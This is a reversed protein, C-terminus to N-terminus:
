NVRYYLRFGFSFNFGFHSGEVEDYDVAVERPDDWLTLNIVDSFTNDRIRFGVGTYVNLGLKKRSKIILGYNINCGYKQRLYNAKDFKYYGGDIKDIYDNHYVDTHHIYFLESSFYQLNKQEPNIIYYLEPRIEYLRHDDDIAGGFSTLYDSVPSSAAWSLKRSGYGLDVGLKWKPAISQIYGARWRPNFPDISSFLSLTLFSSEDMSNKALLEKDQAEIFTASCLFVLILSLKTLQYRKM